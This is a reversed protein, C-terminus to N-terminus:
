SMEAIVGACHAGSRPLRRHYILPQFPSQCVEVEVDLVTNGIMCTDPLPSPLAASLLVHPFFQCNKFYCFGLRYVLCVFEVHCLDSFARNFPSWMQRNDSRVVAMHEKRLYTHLASLFTPFPVRRFSPSLPGSRLM